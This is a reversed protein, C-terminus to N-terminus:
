SGYVNPKERQVIRIKREPGSVTAAPGKPAISIGMVLGFMQHPRDSMHHQLMTSDLDGNETDLAVLKSLHTAYHCHYIWNGPRDALWSLSMTGFPQLVETVAM